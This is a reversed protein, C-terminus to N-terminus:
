CKGHEAEMAQALLPAFANLNTQTKDAMYGQTQTVNRDTLWEMRLKEADRLLCDISHARTVYYGNQHRVFFAAVQPAESRGLRELLQALQGNVKRNRVPAVSYRAQYANAYAQWVEATQPEAKPKRPKPTPPAQSADALPACGEGTPSAILSDPILSDPILSDPSRPSSEDSGLNHEPVAQTTSQEPEDEAEEQGPLESAVERVHPTQHKAFALVQIVAQGKAKYRAIFGAKQLEALMKEVDAARDYPLARVAIRKPRDELRGERDALMWLYIFLLRTLPDLTALEENDMISPKINRARAM